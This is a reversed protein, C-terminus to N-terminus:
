LNEPADGEAVRYPIPTMKKLSKESQFRAGAKQSFLQFQSFQYNCFNPLSVLSMRPLLGFRRDDPEQGAVGAAP